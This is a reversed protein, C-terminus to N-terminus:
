DIDARRVKKISKVSLRCGPVLLGEACHAWRLASIGYREEVKLWSRVQLPCTGEIVLEEASEPREEESGRIRMKKQKAKCNSTIMCIKINGTGSVECIVFFHGYARQPLGDIFGKPLAEPPKLICGVYEPNLDNKPKNEVIVWESNHGNGEHVNTDTVM